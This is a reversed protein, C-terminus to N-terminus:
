CRWPMSDPSAAFWACAIFACAAAADMAERPEGTAFSQPEARAKSLLDGVVLTLIIAGCLLFVPVMIRGLKGHRWATAKVSRM